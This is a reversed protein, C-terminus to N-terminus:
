KQLEPMHLYCGDDTFELQADLATALGKMITVPSESGWFTADIKKTYIEPGSAHITIKYRNQIWALAENVTVDDWTTRNQKVQPTTWWILFSIILCGCTTLALSQVLRIKRKRSNVRRKIKQFGQDPSIPAETIAILDM